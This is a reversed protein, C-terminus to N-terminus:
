HCVCRKAECAGAVSGSCHVCFSECFIDYDCSYPDGGQYCTGWPSCFPVSAPCDADVCCRPKPVTASGDPRVPGGSDSASLGGSDSGKSAVRSGDPTRGGDTESAGDTGDPVQGADSRKVSRPMAIGSDLDPGVAGSDERPAATFPAGCGCLFLALVLPKV